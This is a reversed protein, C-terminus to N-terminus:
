IVVLLFVIFWCCVLLLVVLLLLVGVDFGDGIVFCGVLLLSVAVCGVVFCCCRFLVWM